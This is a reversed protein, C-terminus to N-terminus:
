SDTVSYLGAERNKNKNNTANHFDPFMHFVREMDKVSMGVTFVENAKALAFVPNVCSEKEGNNGIVDWPDFPASALGDKRQIEAEGFLLIHVIKSSSEKSSIRENKNWNHIKGLALAAVLGPDLSSYFPTPQKRNAPIKAKLNLRSPVKLLTLPSKARITAKRWPHGTTSALEGFFRGKGYIAFSKDNFILESFGDLIVYFEDGPDGQSFVIEDVQYKVVESNKLLAPLDPAQLTKKTALRRGGARSKMASKHGQPILVITQGEVAFRFKRHPEPDYHQHVLVMKRAVSEEIHELSQLKTHLKGGGVDHIILDADWVFGLLAEYRQRSFFGKRYWENIEALDFKTDGSHSIITEKGSNDKYALTFRGSPISHLSYDFTFVTNEFGPLKAPKNAEVEFFDIFKELVEVSFYTIAEMKRLFSEFIIRTSMVRLRKGSLIMEALGTDHDSHVHTLFVHFIDSEVIGLRLALRVSDPVADVMIGKGESWLILGSNRRKAAFGSGVGIFTVGMFPKEVLDYEPLPHPPDLHSIDVMGVKEKNCFIDFASPRRQVIQIKLRKDSGPILIPKEKEFQRFDILNNLFKEHGEEDSLSFLGMEKKLQACIIYQRALLSALRPIKKGELWKHKKVITAFSEHTKQFINKDSSHSKLLSEFQRFLKKDGAVKTIFSDLKKLEPPTFRLKKFISRFQAQLLYKFRPGFLTENLINKFRLEQNKTCYVSFKERQIGGFLFSYIIFEFDFNNRGSVFTRFPIVFHHPLKEKRGVFDKVMGPPCGFAVTEIGEGELVRYNHGSIINIKRKGAVIEIVRKAARFCCVSLPELFDM